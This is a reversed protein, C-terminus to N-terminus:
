AMPGRVVWKKLKGGPQKQRVTNESTNVTSKRVRRKPRRKPRRQGQPKGMRPRGWVLRNWCRGCFGNRLDKSGETSPAVRFHNRFAHGCEYLRISKSDDSSQYNAVQRVPRLNALQEATLHTCDLGHRIECRTCPETDRTLAREKKLHAYLLSSYSSQSEMTDARRHNNFDVLLYTSSYNNRICLILYLLSPYHKPCM